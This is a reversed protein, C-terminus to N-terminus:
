HSKYFASGNPRRHDEYKGDVRYTTVEYLEHNALVTVTNM